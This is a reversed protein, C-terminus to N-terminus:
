INKVCRAGKCELLEQVSKSGQGIIKWEPRILNKRYREPVDLKLRREAFQHLTKPSVFWTEDSGFTIGKLKPFYKFDLDLEKIGNETINLTELSPMVEEIATTTIENQSVDLHKLQPM